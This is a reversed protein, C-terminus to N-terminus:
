SRVFQLLKAYDGGDASRLAAIYRTRTEGAEALSAQGWTFPPEGYQKLLLNTLERAHRGNGNEFYHIKVVTHHFRTALDDWAGHIQPIGHELRYRTNVLLEEM